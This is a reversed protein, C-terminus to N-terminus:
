GGGLQSAIWSSQNNMRQMYSELKSFKAYYQDERDAIKVLLETIRIDYNSMEKYLQNTTVSLDGKIGAKELLHGKKGDANRYTTINDDIIDSLRQFVGAGAYRATKEAATATRNYTPYDDPTGNLLKQVADPKDSLAQRLKDEDLTIKGKDLYSASSMGIDKMTIGAGEVTEYMAKRIGNILGQLISDNQLLGTKAKAEWTEIDKTEMAEKQEATLPLYNRDYKEGVKGNLTDILENYKTVFEKIKTVASDVDQTITMTEGTDTLAHQKLLTYTVGNVDFSNSSRTVTVGDIEAEADLGQTTVPAATNIGVAAFFNSGTETLRINDGSGLQKSTISVTDSAADYAMRVNADTDNNVTSMMATLSTSAAFSFDKGNINFAVNGDGDFTLATGLQSALDTLSSAPNIRNATGATMGLSSLGDATGAAVTIKSAGGATNFSLTDTGADFAVAVKPTGGSNTGFATTMAAQISAQIDGRVYAGLEIERTVGDVTVSINKGTLDLPIADDMGAVVGTVAKSVPSASKATDATALQKVKVLHAALDADVGATATVYASNSSTAKRGNVSIPSLLYNTRQTVDFFSTKITKLTNTMERYAEQRWEVLDRKQRMVNLPIREVKMLDSVMTETDLGSLGTMRNTSSAGTIGNM